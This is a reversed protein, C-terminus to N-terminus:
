LAKTTNAARGPLFPLSEESMDDSSIRLGDELPQLTM